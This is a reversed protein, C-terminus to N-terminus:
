LLRRLFARRQHLENLGAPSPDSLTVSGVEDADFGLTEFCANLLEFGGCETLVRRHQLVYKGLDPPLKDAEADLCLQLAVGRSVFLYRYEATEDLRDAYVRTTADLRIEAYLPRDCNGESSTQQVVAARLDEPTGGAALADIRVREDGTCCVKLWDAIVSSLVLDYSAGSVSVEFHFRPYDPTANLARFLNLRTIVRLDEVSVWYTRAVSM